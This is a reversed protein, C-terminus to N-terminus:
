SNLRTQEIGLCEPVIWEDDSPFSLPRYIFFIMEVLGLPNLHLICPSLPWCAQVLVLFKLKAKISWWNHILHVVHFLSIEFSFTILICPASFRKMQLDTRLRTHPYPPLYPHPCLLRIDKLLQILWTPSHRPYWLSSPKPTWSAPLGLDPNKRLSRRRAKPPWM